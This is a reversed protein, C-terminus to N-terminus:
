FHIKKHHYDHSILFEQDSECNLNKLLNYAIPIKSAPLGVVVSLHPVDHADCYNSVQYGFAGAGHHHIKANEAVLGTLLVDELRLFPVNEAHNLLSFAAENSVLYSCGQCFTPYTTHNFERKSIFYKNSRLRHPRRNDRRNCILTQPMKNSISDFETNVFHDFRKLYVVTDDDTKMLYKATSCFSQQWRLAAHTKVPLLDYLDLASYRIIDGYKKQEEFIQENLTSNVSNGIMFLSYYGQPNEKDNMWTERIAQRKDFNQLGSMIIVLVKINRESSCIDIIPQQMEYSVNYNSFRAEFQVSDGFDKPFLHVNDACTLQFLTLAILFLYYM